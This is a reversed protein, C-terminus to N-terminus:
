SRERSPIGLIARRSIHLLWAPVAAERAEAAVGVRPERAFSLLFALLRLRRSVRWILIPSLRLFCSPGARVVWLLGTPCLAARCRVRGSIAVYFNVTPLIIYDM